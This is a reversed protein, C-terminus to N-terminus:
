TQAEERWRKADAQDRDYTEKDPADAKQWAPRNDVPTPPPNDKAFAIDLKDYQARLKKGSLVNDRWRFNGGGEHSPLWKIIATLRDAKRKDFRMARDIDVAWAAVTKARKSNLLTGIDPKWTLISDALSSAISVAVPPPQSKKNETKTDSEESDLKLPAKLTPNGGRKGLGSQQLSYAYDEVMRKVYLKGDYTTCIRKMQRLSSLHNVFTRCSLSLLKAVMRCTEPSDDSMCVGYEANRHALCMLDVLTGRSASSCSRLEADTLWSAPDFKFWPKHKVTGGAIWLVPRTHM